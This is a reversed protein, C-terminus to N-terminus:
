SARSRREHVWGRPQLVSFLARTAFNMLCGPAAQSQRRVQQNLSIIISENTENRVALNAFDTETGAELRSSLRSIEEDRQRISAQFSLLV